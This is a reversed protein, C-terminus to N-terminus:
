AKPASPSMAQSMSRMGRLCIYRTPKCDSDLLWERCLESVWDPRSKAADNLWNGVSDQVYRSPDARLEQILAYGLAPNNKLLVLHSCWVGRPRTIESAFRRLNADTELTWPQLLELAQVVDTSVANRVSIWAIERVGFHHDSAFPRVLQLREELTLGQRLGAALAAWQRALDSVHNALRVQADVNDKMAILLAEAIAWHRQMPKLDPLRKLLSTLAPHKCDIGTQGAVAPLLRNLDAALFEVLNVTEMRGDNIANLVNPPIDAM